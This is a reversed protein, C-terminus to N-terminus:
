AAPSAPHGSLMPGVYTFAVFGLVIGGAVLLAVLALEDAKM